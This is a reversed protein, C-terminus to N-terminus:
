AVGDRAATLTTNPFNQPFIIITLICLEREDTEAEVRLM